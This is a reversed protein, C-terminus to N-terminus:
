TQPSRSTPDLFTEISFSPIEVGVETQSSIRVSGVLHVRPQTSSNTVRHLRNIWVLYASGDAPMSASEDPYEFLCLENSYIPIHLGCLYTAPAADTHWASKLGPNLINVRFRSPQLGRASLDDIVEEFYDSCYPTKLRSEGIVSHLPNFKPQDGEARYHPVKYASEPNGDCSMLGWGSFTNEHSHVPKDKLSQVAM